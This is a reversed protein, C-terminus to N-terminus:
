VGETDGRLTSSAFAAASYFYTIYNSHCQIGANSRQLFRIISFLRSVGFKPFWSLFDGIPLWSFVGYFSGGISSLFRLVKIIPCYNGITLGARRWRASLLLGSCCVDQLGFVVRSCLSYLLLTQNRVVWSLRWILGSPLHWQPPM